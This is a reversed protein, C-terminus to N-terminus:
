ITKGTEEYPFRQLYLEGILHFRAGILDQKMEQLIEPAMKSGIANIEGLTFSHTVGNIVLVAATIAEEGTVKGSHTFETIVQEAVGVQTGKPFAVHKRLFLRQPPLERADPRCAVVKILHLVERAVLADHDSIDNDVIYSSFRTTATRPYITLSPIHIQLWYRLLSKCGTFQFDESSTDAIHILKEQIVDKAHEPTQAFTLGNHPFAIATVDAAIIGYHKREAEDFPMRANLQKAAGSLRRRLQAASAVRKCEVHFTFRKNSAIVDTETTLDVVCYSLCFYSAIRLEYQVNRSHSDSDLAAFDRGKVLVELKCDIGAPIHAKLGKFIWMLEHVERLVYLLWDIPSQFRPDLSHKFIGTGDNWGNVLTRELFEAYREIRTNKTQIGRGQLFQALERIDKLQDELRLSPLSEEPLRYEKHNRNDKM